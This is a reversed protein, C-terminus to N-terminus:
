LDLVETDEYEQIFDDTKSDYEKIAEEVDDKKEKVETKVDTKENVIADMEKVTKEIDAILDTEESEM